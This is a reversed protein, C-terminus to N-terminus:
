SRKGGAARDIDIIKTEGVYEKVEYTSIGSIKRSIATMREVETYITQLMKYSSDRRDMKELLMWLLGSVVQMPQNLEHAAAGAMQLVGALREKEMREIQVEHERSVDTLIAVAQPEEDPQRIVSIHWAIHRVGGHYHPMKVTFYHSNRGARLEQLELTVFGTDRADIFDTVSRGVFEARPMGTINLAARNCDLFRFDVLSFRVMGITPPGETLFRYRDHSKKRISAARELRARSRVAYWLLVSSLAFLATILFASTRIIEKLRQINEPSLLVGATRNSSPPISGQVASVLSGQFCYSQWLIYISGALVIILCFAALISVAHRKFFHIIDLM